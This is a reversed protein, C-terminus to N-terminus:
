INDWLCASNGHEYPKVFIKIPDLVQVQRAPKRLNLGYSFKWKVVDQHSIDQLTARRPELHLRRVGDAKSVSIHNKNNWFFTKSIWFEQFEKRTSIIWYSPILICNILNNLQLFTEYNLASVHALNMINLIVIGEKCLGTIITTYAAVLLQDFTAMNQRYRSFYSNNHKTRFNRVRVQCSFTTIALIILLASVPLWVGYQMSPYEHVVRRCNRVLIFESPAIPTIIFAIIMGTICTINFVAVLIGIFSLRAQHEKCNNTQINEGFKVMM